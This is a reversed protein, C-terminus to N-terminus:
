DPSSTSSSSTSSSTNGSLRIVVEASAVAAATRAAYHLHTHYNQEDVCEESINAGIIAGELYAKFVFEAIM